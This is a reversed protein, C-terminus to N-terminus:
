RSKRHAAAMRRQRAQDEMVKAIAHLQNPTHEMVENLTWGLALAM